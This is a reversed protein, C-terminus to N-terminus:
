RGRSRVAGPRPAPGNPIIRTVTPAPRLLRLRSSCPHQTRRAPGPTGPRGPRVAGPHRWRGLRDGTRRAPRGVRRRLGQRGLATRQVAPGGPEGREVAAGQGGLVPHVGRHHCVAHGPPHELDVLQALVSPVRQEGVRAPGDILQQGPVEGRQGVPQTRHGPPQRINGRRQGPGPPLEPPHGPHVQLGRDPLEVARDRQDAVLYVGREFRRRLAGGLSACTRGAASSASVPCM